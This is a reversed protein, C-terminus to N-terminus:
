LKPAFKLFSELEVNSFILLLVYIKYKKKKLFHKNIPVVATQDLRAAQM